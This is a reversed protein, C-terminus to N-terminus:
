RRYKKNSIYLTNVIHETLEKLEISEKQLTITESEIRSLNLLEKILNNMRSIEQLYM